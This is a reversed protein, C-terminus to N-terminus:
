VKGRMGDLYENIRILGDVRQCLEAPAGGLATNESSFWHRMFRNDGGSLASLSRYLRIFHLCLEGTKSEPAFGKGTNRALTSANVGIIKGAIFKSVALERCANNFALILVAAADPQYKAAITM